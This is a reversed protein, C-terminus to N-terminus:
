EEAQRLAAVDARFEAFTVYDGRAFDRLGAEIAAVTEPDSLIEITEEMSEYEDIGLLVAEPRGNRTVVVHEDHRTVTDILSALRARLERVSVTLAM